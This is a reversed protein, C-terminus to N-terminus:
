DPAEDWARDIMKPIYPLFNWKLCGGRLTPKTWVGDGLPGVLHQDEGPLTFDEGVPYKFQGGYFICM